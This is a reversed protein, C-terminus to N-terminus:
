IIGYIDYEKREKDRRKKYGSECEKCYVSMRDLRVSSKNFLDRGKVINCKPCKKNLQRIDTM